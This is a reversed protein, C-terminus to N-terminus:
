TRRWALQRKNWQYTLLDSNQDIYGMQGVLELKEVKDRPQQYALKNKSASAKVKKM